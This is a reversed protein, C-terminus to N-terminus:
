DINFNGVQDSDSEHELFRYERPGGLRLAVTGSNEERWEIHEKEALEIVQWWKCKLLEVVLVNNLGECCFGVVSFCVIAAYM